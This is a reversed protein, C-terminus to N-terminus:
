TADRKEKLLEPNEHINGIIKIDYHWNVPAFGNSNDNEVMIKVSADWRGCEKNWNVECIRGSKNQILDSEYIEEGNKDKLGTFQMLIYRDNEARRVNFGSADFFSLGHQLTFLLGRTKMKKEKKDWARYKIKRM